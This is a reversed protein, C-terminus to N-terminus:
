GNIKNKRKIFITYKKKRKASDCPKCSRLEGPISGRAMATFAGLGVVLGGPFEGFQICKINVTQHKPIGICQSVIEVIRSFLMETVEVTLMHQSSTILGLGKALKLHM